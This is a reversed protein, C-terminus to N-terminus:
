EDGCCFRNGAWEGSGISVPDGPSPLAQVAGDIDQYLDFLEREGAADLAPPVIGDASVLCLGVDGERAQYALSVLAPVAEVEM